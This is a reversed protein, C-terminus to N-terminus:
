RSGRRVPVADGEAALDAGRSARSPAARVGLREYLGVLKPAEGHWSLREHVAAAGRRGMARARPEDALLEEIAAAIQAPDLPDVFLACGIPELLERWFPFDSAVVPLGAALYEFLKNPLAETHNPQPHFLLLGVRAAALREAVERRDLPGLYEVRSWGPLSHAERELEPPAFAGILVLRTREDRLRGVAEVMERLARGRTIVGVYVVSPEGRGAPAPECFEEPLAYNRLEITRGPPLRRALAPTAAVFGDCVRRALWEFLRLGVRKWREAYPGDELAGLHDEHVDYVLRAGRLKLLVAVPLLVPEHVHCLSAPISRATRWVRWLRRLIVLPRFSGEPLPFGHLRVGDRTGGAAEPAVYDVEYGAAALSRCEKYFIRVDDPPHQSALHVVRM